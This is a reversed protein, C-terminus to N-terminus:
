SSNSSNSSGSNNSSVVLLATTKILKSADVRHWHKVNLIMIESGGLLSYVQM